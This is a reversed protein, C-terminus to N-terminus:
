VRALWKVGLFSGQYGNLLLSDPDKSSSFLDKGYWSEFKVTWGMDLKQVSWATKAGNIGLSVM